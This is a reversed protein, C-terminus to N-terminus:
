KNVSLSYRMPEEHRNAVVLGRKEYVTLVTALRSRMLRKTASRKGQCIVDIMDRCTLPRNGNKKFIRELDKIWFRNKPKRKLKSVRPRGRKRSKGKKPTPSEERGNSPKQDLLSLVNSLRKAESKHHNIARSLMESVDITHSQEM